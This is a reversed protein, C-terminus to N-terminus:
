GFDQDDAASDLWGRSAYLRQARCSEGAPIIGTEGDAAHTSIRISELDAWADDNGPQGGTNLCHGATAVIDPGFLWGTCTGRNSIIHVVARSPFADAPAPIGDLPDVREPATSDLLAAEDFRKAGATNPDTHDFNLARVRVAITPKTM